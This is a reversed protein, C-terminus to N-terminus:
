PLPRPLWEPRPRPLAFSLLLRVGGFWSLEWLLELRGLGSKGVGVKM